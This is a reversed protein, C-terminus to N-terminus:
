SLNDRRACVRRRLPERLGSRFVGEILAIQSTVSQPVLRCLNEDFMQDNFRHCVINIFMSLDQEQEVEFLKQIQYYGEKMFPISDEAEKYSSYSEGILQLQMQANSVSPLAILVAIFLKLLSTKM